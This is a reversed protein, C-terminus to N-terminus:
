LAVAAAECRAVWDQREEREAWAEDNAASRLWQRTRALTRWTKFVMKASVAPVLPSCPDATPGQRDYVEEQLIPHCALCM